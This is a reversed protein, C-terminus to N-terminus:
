EPEIKILVFTMIKHVLTLMSASMANVEDTIFTDTNEYCVRLDQIKLRSVNLQLSANSFDNQASCEM